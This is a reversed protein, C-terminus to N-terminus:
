ALGPLGEGTPMEGLWGDLARRSTFVRPAGDVPDVFALRLALLQLPSTFDDPAVEHVVPYLPDGVIPIGLDSLHRRIQHTRGGVPTLRYLGHAGEAGRREVGLLEVRTECNPAERRLVEVQLSGRTKRLHSRVLQPLQLDPHVPAVALYTKQAARGAFVGQYAGRYRRQTTLVLVGATLRDLRHALALEPLDLEHRARALASEVVHKGRPMSALFHPKDVVVLREDRHLVLLPFPVPVEDALPRDVWVTAGPAYPEGMALARGDAAVVRGQAFLAQVDAPTIGSLRDVLYAGVTPWSGTVPPSVRTADVGQRQPLPSAATGRSRM